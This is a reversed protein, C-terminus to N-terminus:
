SIPRLTFNRLAISKAVHPNLRIMAQSLSMGYPIKHNLMRTNVKFREWPKREYLRKLTDM